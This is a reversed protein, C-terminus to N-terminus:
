PVYVLHIRIQFSDDAARLVRADLVMDSQGSEETWLDVMVDWHRGTWQAISTEWTEEPLEALTEGYDAIYERIQEATEASVPAVSSVGRALAYDGEVFAQVIEKLVPRWATPVPHAEDEDQLPEHVSYDIQETM